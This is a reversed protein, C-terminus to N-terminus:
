FRRQFNVSNGHLHTSLETTRSQSIKIGLVLNSSSYLKYQANVACSFHQRMDMTCSMPLKQSSMLKPQTLSAPLFAGVHMPIDEVRWHMEREM